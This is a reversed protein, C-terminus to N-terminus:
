LKFKKKTNLFIKNKAKSFIKLNNKNKYLFYNNISLNKHGTCLVFDNFGQICFNKIIHMLIPEKGIYAMPKAIVRGLNDLRTGYGGCLIFVKM